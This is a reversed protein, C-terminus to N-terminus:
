PAPSCAPASSVFRLSSTGAGLTGTQGGSVAAVLYWYFSGPAPNTVLTEGTGNSAGQYALCAVSGANLQGLQEKEGRYVKYGDAGATPGWDLGAKSAPSWRLVTLPTGAAEADDKAVAAPSTSSQGCGNSYILSYTYDTVKLGNTDIYDQTSEALGSAVALSNRMVCYTGSGAEGDGWSSPPTWSTIVGSFAYPDLDIASPSSVGSPESCTFTFSPGTSSRRTDPNRVTVIITGAAHPPTTVTLSTTSFTSPLVETEGFLVVPSDTPSNCSAGSPCSNSFGTGTLTLSTGGSCSGTNSSIGTVAPYTSATITRTYVGTEGTSAYYSPPNGGDVVLDELRQSISSFGNSIKMWHVGKDGSLWVGGSYQGTGTGNAAILIDGNSALLLDRFDNSGKNAVNGGASFWQRTDCPGDPSWFVGGTCGAVLTKDPLELVTNTNLNTLPFPGVDGNCEIWNVSLPGPQAFTSESGKTVGTGSVTGWIISASPGDPVAGKEATPGHTGGTRTIDAKIGAFGTCGSNLSGALSYASTGASKGWIGIHWVGPKPGHATVQVNDVAWYNDNGADYYRFRVKFNQRGAASVSIDLTLPAPTPYGNSSGQMRYINNWTLGGDPSVDVDAKENLGLARYLFQNSFTLSVKSYLSADLSPTILQEDQAASIGACWSDVLAVPLSMPSTFTTRGCPNSTTWTAASGGGSGGDVVTWSSPIGSTFAESLLTVASPNICVTEDTTLYPRYDYIYITPPAGYRVYMNPNQAGGDDLDDMFFRVDSTGAPVQMTYYNFTNQIVTESIPTGGDLSDYGHRIGKANPATGLGGNHRHWYPDFSGGTGPTNAFMGCYQNAGWTQGTAWVSRTLASDPLAEIREFKGGLIGQSVGSEDKWMCNYWGNQPGTSTELELNVRQTSPDYSLYRAMIGDGATGAWVIDLNTGRRDKVVSLGLGTQLVCPGGAVGGMGRNWPRYSIGKDESVFVGMSPSSTFLIKADREHAVTTFCDDPLYHYGWFDNTSPFHQGGDTSLTAGTALAGSIRNGQLGAIAIQGASDSSDYQVSFAARAEVLYWRGGRNETWFIGADTALVMHENSTTDRFLPEGALDWARDAGAPSSPGISTWTTGSYMYVGGTGGLPPISAATAYLDSSYGSEGYHNPFAFRTVRAGASPYVLSTWSTGDNTSRYVRNVTGNDTSVLVTHSPGSSYGYNPPLGVAYDPGLTFVQVWGSTSGEYRYLGTPTGAFLKKDDNDYGPSIALDYIQGGSPWGLSLKEWTNGWDVSMYVGSDAPTSPFNVGVFLLSEFATGCTGSPYTYTEDYSPHLCVSVVEPVLGNPFNNYRVMNGPSAGHLVCKMLGHQKSGIFKGRGSVGMAVDYADVTEPGRSQGGALCNSERFLGNPTGYFIFCRNTGNYNRQFKVEQIATYPQTLAASTGDDTSLYPSDSRGEVLTFSPSTGARDIASVRPKTGSCGAMDCTGDWAKSWNYGDDSSKYMGHDITGAWMATGSTWLLATVTELPANGLLYSRNSWSPTTLGIRMKCPGDNSKGGVMLMSDSSYDASIALAYINPMAGTDGSYQTWTPSTGMNEGVFLGAGAYGAFLVQNSGTTGGLYNPHIALSTGKARSPIPSKVRTFTFAGDANTSRYVSGDETIAFLTGDSGFSPSVALDTVSAEALEAPSPSQEWSSGMDLSRWVGAGRTGAFIVDTDSFAITQTNIGLVAIREWDEGSVQARLNSFHTLLLIVTSAFAIKHKLRM